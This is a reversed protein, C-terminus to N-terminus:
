EVDTFGVGVRDSFNFMVVIRVSIRSSDCFRSSCLKFFPLIDPVTSCVVLKICDIWSNAFAEM